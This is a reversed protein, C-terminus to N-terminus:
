IFSPYPIKDMPGMKVKRSRTGIQNGGHLQQPRRNGGSQQRIGDVRPACKYVVIGDHKAEKAGVRQASMDLLLVNYVDRVSDMTFVQVVMAGALGEESSTLVMGLSAEM